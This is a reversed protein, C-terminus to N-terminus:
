FMDRHRRATDLASVSAGERRDPLAPDWDATLVPTETALRVVDL